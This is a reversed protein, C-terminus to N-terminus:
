SEDRATHVDRKAVQDDRGVQPDDTVRARHERAVGTSQAADVHPGLAIELSHETARALYPDDARCAAVPSCQPQTPSRDGLAPAGALRPAAEIVAVHPQEYVGRM